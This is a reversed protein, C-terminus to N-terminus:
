LIARGVALVDRFTSLSQNWADLHCHFYRWCIMSSCKKGINLSRIQKKLEEFSLKETEEKRAVNEFDGYTKEFDNVEEPEEIELEEENDEEIQENDEDKFMNELEEIDDFM